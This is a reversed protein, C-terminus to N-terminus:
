KLKKIKKCTFSVLCVMSFPSGLSVIHCFTVMADSLSSLTVVEFCSHPLYQMCLLMYMHSIHFQYKQEDPGVFYSDKNYNNAVYFITFVIPLTIHLTIESSHSQLLRSNDPSQYSWRFIFNNDHHTSMYMHISYQTGMKNIGQWSYHPRHSIHTSFLSDNNVRTTQLTFVVLDVIQRLNIPSM